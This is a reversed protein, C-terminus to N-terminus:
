WSTHHVVQVVKIFSLHFIVQGHFETSLASPRWTCRLTIYRLHRTWLETRTQGSDVHRVKPTPNLAWDPNTRLHRTWLETRTQGSYVLIIEFLESACSSCLSLGTCSFLTRCHGTYNTVTASVKILMTLTTLRTPTLQLKLRPQGHAPTFM